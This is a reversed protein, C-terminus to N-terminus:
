ARYKLIISNIGDFFGFYQPPLQSKLVTALLVRIYLDINKSLVKLYATLQTCIDYPVIV